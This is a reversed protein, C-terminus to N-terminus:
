QPGTQINPLTLRIDHQDLAGSTQHRRQTVLVIYGVQGVVATKRQDDDRWVHETHDVLGQLGQDRGEGEAFPQRHRPDHQIVHAPVDPVVRAHLAVVVLQDGM